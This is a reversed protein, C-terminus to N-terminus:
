QKGRREAMNQLYQMMAGVAEFLGPNNLFSTALSQVVLGQPGLTRWLTSKDVDVLEAVCFMARVAERKHTNDTYVGPGGESPIEVVFYPTLVSPSPAEKNEDSM